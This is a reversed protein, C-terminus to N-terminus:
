SAAKFQEQIRSTMILWEMTGPRRESLILLRTKRDYNGLQPYEYTHAKEIDDVSKVSRIDHTAHFAARLRISIEIDVFDHAEIILDHAALSAAMEATFLVSEYGECDCIILAKRGLPLGSLVAQNCLGGLHVRKEVGNLGALEGCLRRAHENTDFAYVEAQPCKLAMGIAYYGEACGIDVVASYNNALMQELTPHLEREYSGLLKPLLASGVPQGSWRMGAFPGNSIVPNPFMQCVIGRLKEDREGIELTHHAHGYIKGFYTSLKGCLKYLSWALPNGATRGVFKKGIERVSM